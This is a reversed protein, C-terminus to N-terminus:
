VEVEQDYIGAAVKKKQPTASPDPQSPAGEGDGDALGGDPATVAPPRPVTRKPLKYKHRIQDELEEDVIVIEKEVLTALQDIGLVDDEGEYSLVPVIDEDAYNWDVWDEIVHENTVDVYWDCIAKQGLIFMDNFQEALAYSGVHQGGQALNALMLLFRRAMAEDHMRISGQVDSGATKLVTVGAGPPLAGGATEGVRMEQMMESLAGIEGPTAEPGATGIPIGGAKEHNIADVRLLRDKILWNKYTDRMISRGVWNAGEQDFIYAVLRDVPIEPGGWYAPTQQPGSKQINQTISVLGGDQAVKISSLSQPIRVALKRLRWLGDVIEGSQEFYMHGYIMAKLAQVLHKKHSFRKKMRRKKHSEEGMIPLNLDESVGKVIEDRAGNPDIVFRLNSIGYIVATVLGALQSDTRMQDYTFVSNPWRLDPVYEYEDIFSQWPEPGGLLPHFAGVSVMAGIEDTPPRGGSRTTTRPRGVPAM